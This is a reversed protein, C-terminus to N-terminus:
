QEQVIKKEPGLHYLLHDKMRRECNLFRVLCLSSFRTRATLRSLEVNMERIGLKPIMIPPRLKEHLRTRPRHQHKAM